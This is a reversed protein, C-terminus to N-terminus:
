TADRSKRALNVIVAMRENSPIKDALTAMKQAILEIDDRVVTDPNPWFIAFPDADDQLHRESLLNAVRQMALLNRRLLFEGQSAHGDSWSKLPTSIGLGSDVVSALWSRNDSMTDDLTRSLFDNYGHHMNGDGLMRGAFERCRARADDMNTCGLTDFVAGELGVMLANDAGELEAWVANLAALYDKRAAARAPLSPRGLADPITRFLMDGPSRAVELARRFAQAHPSVTQTRRAYVSLRAHRRLAERALAVPTASTTVSGPTALAKRYEHMFVSGVPSLAAAAVAFRGPAKLLRLLTDPGWHPLFDGDEYLEHADRDDLLILICLLLAPTRNVGYPPTALHDVVVDVPPPPPRDGEVFLRRIEAICNALGSPLRNGDLRLRWTGDDAFTHLGTQKLLSEYIIREAPFKEIGLNEQELCAYLQGILKRLAFMVQGSVRHRNVLENHLEFARPYAADMANSLAQQMNTFRRKGVYWRLDSDLLNQSLAAIRAEYFALRSRMEKAAVADGQLAADQDLLRRIAAAELLHPVLAHAGTVGVVDGSPVADPLRDAIWVLIRPDGYAEPPDDGANLWYVKATRRNGTRILHGHALVPRDSRRTMESPIDLSLASMAEDIRLTVDYDSGEWVAYESRYRRYLVLSRNTLEEICPDFPFGRPLCALASTKDANIGRGACFGLLALTRFLIRAAASLDDGAREHAANIAAFRKAFAPNSPVLLADGFFHDYLADPHLWGCSHRQRTAQFGTDLDSTLWGVITRDHQGLLRALRSLLVVTMPHLPYCERAAARFEIDRLIRPRQGEFQVPPLDQREALGLSALVKGAIYAADTETNNLVTERFRGRVKEWEDRRSGYFRAGYHELGYHQIIILSLPSDARGTAEAIGQLLHFDNDSASSLMYELHRGFEDIVLLAGVRGQQRIARAVDTLLLLAQESTAGRPDLAACSQLVTDPTPFSVSNAFAKLALIVRSALPEAAGVIPMPALGGADLVKAVPSHDEGFLNPRSNPVFSATPCSLENLAFAALSSKGAGYAGLLAHAGGGDLAASALRSVFEISQSTPHYSVGSASLDASNEINVALRM